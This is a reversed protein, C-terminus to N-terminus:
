MDGAKVVAALNGPPLESLRIGWRIYTPIDYDIRVPPQSHAALSDPPNPLGPGKAYAPNTRVTERLKRISFFTSRM